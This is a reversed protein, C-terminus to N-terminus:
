ALGQQRKLALVNFGSKGPVYTAWARKEAETWGTTDVQPKSQASQPLSATVAQEVGSELTTVQSGEQAWLSKGVMSPDYERPPNWGTGGGTGGTWDPVSPLNGGGGTNYLSPYQSPGGTGGMPREGPISFMDPFSSAGYTGGYTRVPADMTGGVPQGATQLSTQAGLLAMRENSARTLDAQKSSEALNAFSMMATMYRNEAGGRARLRARAATKEAALPVAGMVTTGGLGGQILRGTGAAIASKKGAEIDALDAELTAGGVKLRSLVQQYMEAAEPM